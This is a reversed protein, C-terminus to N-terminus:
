EVRVTKMVTEFIEEEKEKNIVGSVAKAKEENEVDIAGSFVTIFDRTVVLTKKDSIKLYYITHGCGEAGEFISFGKLNGNDFPDIFGPSANIEGNIFNEEPIYPSMERIADNINKDVTQLNVRFDTLTDITTDIEGKFDCYDHHVFPVEHYLIVSDKTTSATLIKPYSFSIGLKQSKYTSFEPNIVNKGSNLYVLVGLVVFVIVVLVLKKM